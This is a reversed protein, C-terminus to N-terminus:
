GTPEASLDVPIKVLINTGKGPYSAIEFIGDFANARSKMTELGLGKKNDSTFDFGVGDDDITLVIENEYGILQIDIETAKAHKEINHLAEQVLRFLHLSLDGGIIPFDYVDLNVVVGTNKQFKDCYLAISKALGIVNLSHPILRHSLERVDDCLLDIDKKLEESESSGSEIKRKLLSLNSGINDHLEASLMKRENEGGRVFARMLEKQQISVKFTLENKNDNLEKIRYIMAFSLILIELISGVMIPNIPFLTEPIVGYEILIYLLAGLIISTFALTFLFANKRQNKWTMILAYIVSCIFGILILYLVNLLPITYYYYQDDIQKIILWAFLMVFLTFITILHGKYMMPLYTKINLIRGFFDIASSGLLVALVVRSSSNIKPINPYFFEFSYGLQTFIYLSILSVYISYSIFLKDPLGIGVFFSVIAIFILIGFYIGFSLNSKSENNQFSRLRWLNLPFSVSAFRKDVKLLYATEAQDSLQFVFRRNIIPRSFFPLHDGTKSISTVSNNSIEFLQTNDIHPNNLELILKQKYPNKILFYVWFYKESFGESTKNSEFDVQGQLMRQYAEVGSFNEISSFVVADKNISFMSHDKEIHIEGRDASAYM